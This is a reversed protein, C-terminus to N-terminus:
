CISFIGNIRSDGFNSDVAYHSPSANQVKLRM